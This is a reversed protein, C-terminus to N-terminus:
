IKILKNNKPKKFTVRELIYHETVKNDKYKIIYYEKYKYVSYLSDLTKRINWDYKITKLKVYNKPNVILISDLKDQSYVSTISLIVLALKILKM